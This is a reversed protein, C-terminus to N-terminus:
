AAEEEDEDDYDDKARTESAAPAPLLARPEVGVSIPIATGGTGPDGLVPIAFRVCFAQADVKLGHVNLAMQLQSLAQAATLMAQAEANREKPPTVDWEVVACEELAEAGWRAVVWPPIGQTNITYALGVATDKILDARISKHIDANAFGTGGDTTVSQGAIAVIIDDNAAKITTNFCEYGRGNSELLRVDYGPTMGFVTNIGWAMVARFWSQKHEDSAGQPSVAVRAPNALKGEWNAKHLEAHTKSIYAKGIARWLGTRWPAIRGGPTHLIWRGDGPTIPLTGVVSTFYWRNEAWRFTLFQPDLRVMVPYDRGAVPVLEAVGVGLEVGDAALKALESPPFMEDFVSRISDHGLELADVIERNGRFKKPLGVLGGTRTSLVGAYTGDTRAANMLMAARSLDGADAMHQAIELDQVLWRTQTQSIPSINGGYARRGDEVQPSDLSPGAMPLPSTYASVGLLAAITARWNM